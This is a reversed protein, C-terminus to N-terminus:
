FEGMSFSLHFIIPSTSISPNRGFRGTRLRINLRVRLADAWAWSGTAGGTSEADDRDIRPMGGSDKEGRGGEGDTMGRAAGGM